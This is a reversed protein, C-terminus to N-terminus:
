PLGERASRGTEGEIVWNYGPHLGAEVAMLEQTNGPRSRSRRPESMRLRVSSSDTRISDQRHPIRGPPLGTEPRDHHKEVM